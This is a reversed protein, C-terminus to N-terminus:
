REIRNNGGAIDVMKLYVDSVSLKEGRNRADTIYEIMQKMDDESDLCVYIGKIFDRSEKVSALNAILKKEIETAKRM